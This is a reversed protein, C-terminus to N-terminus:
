ANGRELRSVEKRPMRQNGQDTILSSTAQSRSVGSLGPCTHHLNVLRPMARRNWFDRESALVEVSPDVHCTHM